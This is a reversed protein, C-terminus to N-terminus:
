RSVSGGCRAHGAGGCRAVGRGAPANADEVGAAEAFPAPAAHESGPQEGGDEGKDDGGREGDEAACEHKGGDDGGDDEQAIVVRPDGDCGALDEDVPAVLGDDERSGDGMDLDDHRRCRGSVITRAVPPRGAVEMRLGVREDDFQAAGGVRGAGGCPPELNETV